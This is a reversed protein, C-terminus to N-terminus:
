QYNFFFQVLIQTSAAKLQKRTAGDALVQVVHLIHEEGSSRAPRM